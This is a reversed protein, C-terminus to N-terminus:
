KQVNRARGLMDVTLAVLGCWVLGFGIWRAPPMDEHFVALALIFQIVPTMYQMLGVYSLPLHKAAIGFFILPIATMVGFMILGFSGLPGQSGFQIGPALAAVFSLQIVAIPTLFGSEIAYGSIASVKGGLKNKALGYLGFSFALSLAIWPLHGYDVSLVVVAVSGFSVALWQLRSLREKLFFVALAITVLPNIFYGLSTEIIRHSAVGIVYVQWNVMIMATSVLMWTLSNKNRLIPMISSWTKTVTLLLVAMGFGFIIRWAVIENATAFSGLASIILPFSGWILYAGLGFSFGRGRDPTKYNQM